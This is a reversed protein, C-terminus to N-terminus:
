RNYASRKKRQRFLVRGNIDPYHESGKIVAVANSKFNNYRM